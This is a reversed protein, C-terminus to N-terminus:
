DDWWKSFVRHHTKSGAEDIAAVEEASLGPLTETALYEKVREEKSTTTIAPIGKARLWLQLVQGETVTTGATKGVRAAISTLVSDVPGGKFRVIPTLGGFSTPLINKEKMYKIVPEDAKFVYPHYEIQNVAPVVSADGLIEEFDQVRFNSVGISKALGEKQVQEVQKWVSSLEGEHNKPSHILFLDVYDLRLKKLSTLVTDRVTQGPLIKGLKTTVFLSSRPKDSAAIAAGLSDENGYSQAGDLHVIGNKIAVSVANEVDKGYLATGTGFALWPIKNGDNLTITLASM